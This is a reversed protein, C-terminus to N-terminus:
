GNKHWIKKLNQTFPNREYVIQVSKQKISNGSIYTKNDRFFSLFLVNKADLLNNPKNMEVMIPFHIETTDDQITSLGCLLECGAMNLHQGFHNAGDLSSMLAICSLKGRKEM